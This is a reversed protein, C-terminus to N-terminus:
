HQREAQKGDLSATCCCSGAQRDTRKGSRKKDNQRGTAWGARRAKWSLSTQIPAPYCPGRLGEVRICSFLRPLVNLPFPPNSSPFLYFFSFSSLSLSPICVTFSATYLSLFIHVMPFLSPHCISHHLTLFGSCSSTLCSISLPSM